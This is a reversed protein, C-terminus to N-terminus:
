SLRTKVINSVIRNDAEGHFKKNFEKMVNGINLQNSDLTKLIEDVERKILDESMLKPLYEDLVKAESLSEETNTKELNKKIERLTKIVNEDTPLIGRLENAKIESKVLGLFNKRTFDKNKYSTIYDQNIKEILM